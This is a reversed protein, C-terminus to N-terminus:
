PKYVYGVSFIIREGKTIKTVYHPHLDPRFYYGDGAVLPVRQGEIYLEGGEAETVLTNLRHHELGLEVPDTHVPIESGTPYKLVWADYKEPKVWLKNTHNWHSTRLAQDILIQYRLDAKVDKKQYGTGQKGSVFGENPEHQIFCRLEASIRWSHMVWPISM